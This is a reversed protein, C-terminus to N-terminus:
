CEKTACLIAIPIRFPSCSIYNFKQNKFFDISQPDGGHEGCVGIKIEPNAKRAAQIAIEILRGVGGVDLSQFPDQYIIDNELYYMQYMM